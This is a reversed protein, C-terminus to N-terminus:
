MSIIFMALLFMVLFWGFVFCKKSTFLNSNKLKKAQLATGQVAVALATSTKGEGEEKPEEEDKEENDENGEGEDGEEEQDEEEVEEEEEEEEEEEMEEEEHEEDDEADEEDASASAEEAHDGQDDEAEEEDHDSEEEIEKEQDGPNNGQLRALLADKVESKDSGEGVILELFSELNGNDMEAKAKASSLARNLHDMVKDKKGNGESSSTGLDPSKVRVRKAPPTVVGSNGKPQNVKADSAQKAKKAQSKEVESEFKKANEDKKEVKKKSKQGLDAKADPAPKADKNGKSARKMIEARILEVRKKKEAATQGSQVAAKGLTLTACPKSLAVKTKGTNAKVKSPKAPKAAKAM